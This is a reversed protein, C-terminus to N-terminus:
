KGPGVEKITVDVFRRDILAAPPIPNKLVGLEAGTKATFEAIKPDLGGAGGWVNDNNLDRVVRKALELDISSVMEHLIAASEDPNEMVFRSGKVGATTLIQISPAWKPDGLIAVRAVNWVYGLMPFEDAIKAVLNVRHAQLADLATITNVLTADARGGLVAQLRAPHGGVQIFRATSPDVNHKRMLIRPLQDPLAGPGSSAIVKGALDSIKSGKDAAIVVNYDPLPSWSGIARLDAGADVATLVSFTGIGAGFEANGSLVARVANSDGTVYLEEVSLDGLWGKKQAVYYPLFATTPTTPFVIRIKEAANAAPTTAGMALTLAALAVKVSFSKTSGYM